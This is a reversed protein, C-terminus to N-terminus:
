LLQLGSHPPGKGLIHFMNTAWSEPRQVQSEKKKKKKQRYCLHFKNKKLKNIKIPIYNSLLLTNTKGYMSMFRGRTYM